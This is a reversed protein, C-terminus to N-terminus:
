NDNLGTAYQDIRVGNLTLESAFDFTLKKGNM